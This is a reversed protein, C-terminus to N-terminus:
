TRPDTGLIAPALEDLAALVGGAHAAIYTGGFPCSEGWGILGADTDLRIVTTKFSTYTRGGSLRYVGPYPLDVQYAVVRTIQM